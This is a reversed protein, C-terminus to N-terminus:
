NEKSKGKSGAKDVKADSVKPYPPGSYEDFRSHGKHMDAGGGKGYNDRRWAAADYEGSGVKFRPDGQSSSSSKKDM